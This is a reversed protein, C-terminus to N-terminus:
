NINDINGLLKKIREHLETEKAIMDDTRIKPYNEKALMGDKLTADKSVPATQVFGLDKNLTDDLIDDREVVKYDHNVTNTVPESLM